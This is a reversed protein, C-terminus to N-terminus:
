TQRSRDLWSDYLQEAPNLARKWRYADALERGRRALEQSGERDELLAAAADALGVPTDALMGHRGDELGIGEVGLPTGVVPRASALAELVKLRTGGGQWLPVLVLRSRELGECLNAVFGLPQVRETAAARRALEGSMGKGALLLRARPRLAALRPWGERLFRLVGLENPPYDFQGFFLVDESAPLESRVEFFEDDVGNPAELVLRARPELQRRDHASVCLVADARPVARHELMRMALSRNHARAWAPTLSPTGRAVTALMESDINHLSLISRTGALADWYYASQTHEFQVFAAAPALARLRADLKPLYPSPRRAVHQRLRALPSPPGEDVQEVSWGRGRLEDAAGPEGADATLLQPIGGVRAIAEILRLTRKHGGGVAPYPLVPCVVVARRQSDSGHV